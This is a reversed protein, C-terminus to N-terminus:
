FKARIHNMPNKDRFYKWFDTRWEINLYNREINSCWFLDGLQKQNFLNINNMSEKSPQM